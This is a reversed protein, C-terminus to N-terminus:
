YFSHHPYTMPHHPLRHVGLPMLPPPAPASFMAPASTQPASIPQCAPTSQSMKKELVDLKTAMGVVLNRLELFDSSESNTDGNRRTAKQKAQRPANNPRSSESKKIRTSRPHFKVCDRKPCSGNDLAVKCIEPHFFHCGSGKKCGNKGKLGSIRFQNCVRPHVFSCKRGDIEKKGSMGHPCKWNLFNQCIDQTPAPAQNLPSVNLIDSNGTVEVQTSTFLSKESLKSLDANSGLSVNDSSLTGSAHRARHKRTEIPDIDDVCKDCLWVFGAPTGLTSLTRHLASVRECDHSGRFCRFCSFRPPDQPRHDIVYKEGCEKCPAPLLARFGLYIRKALAPKAFIKYGEQNAVAIGLFEACSELLPVTFHDLKKVAVSQSQVSDFASIVPKIPLEAKDLLKGIIVKVNESDDQKIVSGM